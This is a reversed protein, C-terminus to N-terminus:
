GPLAAGLKVFRLGRVRGGTLRFGDVAGEGGRTFRVERFFWRPGSFTDGEDLTLALDGHRLHRAVLAGDEVSIEYLTRIEPSYYTGTFSSLAEADPAVDVAPAPSTEAEADPEAQPVPELVDGLVVDAVRRARLAPNSSALNSLVVVGTEHEPFWTVNSRFGADSGGHSVTAAGRYTGIGVGLAYGITDGGNLVGRTTMRELVRPGGVRQHRFNDLWRALDDATTFLSTAGHNASSLVATTYGDDAARYSYARGPVVMEHDDHVHTSTMGLPGFVRARLFESFPEGSAREVLDALMSFGMNSYLYEEGPPFNLEQQYSLMRRVHEKTIVDDLRWGAMALLEWQDRVGSTHHLLHRVTVTRGMDPVEPMHQRIDDDLSLLGDAELLLVGMATFQKSVSAVHFITSATVPVQYEIQASGFGASYVITGDRVVAVSAGPSAPDDLDQFIERVAEARDPPLSQGTMSAPWLLLGM